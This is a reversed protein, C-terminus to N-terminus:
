VSRLIWILHRRNTFFICVFSSKHMLWKEFTCRAEGFHARFDNRSYPCIWAIQFLWAHVWRIETSVGYWTLCATRLSQSGRHAAQADLFHLSIPLPWTLNLLHFRLKLSRFRSRHFLTCLPLLCFACLTIVFHHCTFGAPIHANSHNTRRREEESDSQIYEEQSCLTVAETDCIAPHRIWDTLFESWTIM